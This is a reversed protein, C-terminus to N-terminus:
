RRKSRFGHTKSIPQISNGVGDHHAVSTNYMDELNGIGSGLCVGTAERDEASAEHLLAADALAMDSAAVAYQTFKSMRRQDSTRLWDTPNWCDDQRPGSPILGAVTSTQERWQDAPNLGRVSVLGSNGALLRTWTRRIGVGLPTVAGLGTVVM